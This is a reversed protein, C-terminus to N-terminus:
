FRSNCSYSFIFIFSIFECPPRLPSKAAVNSNRRPRLCSESEAEDAEEADDESEKEKRANVASDSFLQVDYVKQLSIINQLMLSTVILAVVLRVFLLRRNTLPSNSM